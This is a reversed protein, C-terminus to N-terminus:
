AESKSLPSVAFGYQESLIKSQEVRQNFAAINDAFEDEPTDPDDALVLPDFDVEEIIGQRVGFTYADAQM